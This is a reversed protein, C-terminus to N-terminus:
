NLVLTPLIGANIKANHGSIDEFAKGGQLMMSADSPTSLIHITDIITWCSAVIYNKKYRYVARCIEAELGVVSVVPQLVTVSVGSATSVTIHAGSSPHLYWGICTSCNVSIFLSYITADQQVIISM